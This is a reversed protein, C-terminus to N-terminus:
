AKAPPTQAALALDYERGDAATAVVRGERCDIRDIHPVKGDAHLITIRGGARKATWNRLTRM